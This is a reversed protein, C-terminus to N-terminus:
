QDEDQEDELFDKFVELRKNLEPDEQLERLIQRGWIKRSPRNGDQRQLSEFFGSKRLLFYMIAATIVIYPLM